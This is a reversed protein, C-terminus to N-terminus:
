NDERYVSFGKSDNTTFWTKLVRIKVTEGQGYSSTAYVTLLLKPDECDELILMGEGLFINSQKVKGKIFYIGTKSFPLAKEKGAIVDSVDNFYFAPGTCASFLLFFLAFIKKM